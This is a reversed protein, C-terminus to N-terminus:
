KQRVSFLNAEVLLCIKEVSILVTKEVNGSIQKGRLLKVVGQLEACCCRPRTRSSKLMSCDYEVWDLRAKLFTDGAGLAQSTARYPTM